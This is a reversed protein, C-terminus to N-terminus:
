NIKNETKEINKLVKIREEEGLIQNIKNIVADINRAEELTDAGERYLEAEEEVAIKSDGDQKVDTLSVSVGDQQKLDPSNLYDNVKDTKYTNIDYKKNDIEKNKEAIRRRRREAADSYNSYNGYDSHDSHDSYSGIIVGGVVGGIVAFVVAM